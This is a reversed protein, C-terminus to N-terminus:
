NNHIRSLEGSRQNYTDIFDGNLPSRILNDPINLMASAYRRQKYIGNICDRKSTRIFDVLDSELLNFRLLDPYFAEVETLFYLDLILKELQSARAAYHIHLASLVLYINFCDLFIRAYYENSNWHELRSVEAPRTKLKLKAEQHLLRTLTSFLRKQNSVELLQGGVLPADLTDVPILALLEKKLLLDQAAKQRIVLNDGEATIVGHITVIHDIIGTESFLGHAGVRQRVENLINLARDSVYSKLLALYVHKHSTSTIQHRINKIYSYFAEIAKVQAFANVVSRKHTFYDGVPIDQNSVGFTKREDSFKLTIKIVSKLGNAIGGSLCLKGAQVRDIAKYFRSNKSSSETVLEGNQDFYSGEGLLAFREPIDVDKFWTIANDLQYGPKEGLPTIHIGELIKGDDNHLPVIFPFVGISRNEVILQALVCAIKPTASFATNPMFKKAEACPTNIRFVRKEKIFRAETKLKIVNNGYGLETALFVGIRSFDLLESIVDEINQQKSKTNLITGLCLNYHITMLTLLTGSVFGTWEHLTLLKDHCLAIDSATLKATKGLSVLRQYEIACREINSRGEHNDFLDSALLNKIDQEFTEKKSFHGVENLLKM